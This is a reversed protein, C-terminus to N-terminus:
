PRQVGGFRVTIVGGSSTCLVPHSQESVVTEAVPLLEAAFPREVGPRHAAPQLQPSSSRKDGAVQFITM